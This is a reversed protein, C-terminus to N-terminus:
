FHCMVHSAHSTVHSVQGMVHPLKKKRKKKEKEVVVVAIFFPKGFVFLFFRTKKKNTSRDADKLLNMDGTHPIQLLVSGASQVSRHVLVSISYQVSSFM